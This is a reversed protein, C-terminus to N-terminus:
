TGAPYGVVAAFVEALGTLSQRFMPVSDGQTWRHLMLRTWNRRQAPAQAFRSYQLCGCGQCRLSPHLHPVTDGALEPPDHSRLRSRAWGPVIRLAEAARLAM